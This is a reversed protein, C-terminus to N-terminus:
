AGWVISRIMKVGLLLASISIGIAFLPGLEKLTGETGVIANVVTAIWTIVTELGETVYALM